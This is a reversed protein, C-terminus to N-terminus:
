LRKNCNLAIHMIDHSYDSYNLESKGYKYDDQYEKLKSDLMVKKLWVLLSGSTKNFEIRSKDFYWNTNDAKVWEESFSPGVNFALVIFVIIYLTKM